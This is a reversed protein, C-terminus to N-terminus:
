NKGKKKSDVEIWFLSGCWDIYYSLNIRFIEYNQAM